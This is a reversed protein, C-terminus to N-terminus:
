TFDAHAWAGAKMLLLAALIYAVVGAAAIPGTKESMSKMSGTFEIAGLPIAFWQSIGIWGGVLAAALSLTALAARFRDFYGSPSRRGRGEGATAGGENEWRSLSRAKGDEESRPTEPM